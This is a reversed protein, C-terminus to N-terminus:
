AQDEGSIHAPESNSLPKEDRAFYACHDNLEKRRNIYGGFPKESGIWYMSQPLPPMKFPYQCRGDGSPHLRLKETRNWKAYKCHTCNKM